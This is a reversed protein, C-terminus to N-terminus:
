KNPVWSLKMDCKCYSCAGEYDSKPFISTHECPMSSGNLRSVLKELERVRKRLLHNQGAKKLLNPYQLIVNIFYNM